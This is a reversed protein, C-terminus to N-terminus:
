GFPNMRQYWPKDNAGALHAAGLGGVLGAAGTAGLYRSNANNTLKALDDAGMSLYETNPAPNKAATLNGSNIRSQDRAAGYGKGMIAKRGYYGGLGGLAAGGLAGTLAGRLGHGEEANIFGGIGGALAGTGAGSYFFPNKALNLAKEVFATKEMDQVAQQCGYDYAIKLMPNM